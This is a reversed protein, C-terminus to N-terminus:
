FSMGTMLVLGLVETMTQNNTGQYVLIKDPGASQISYALVSHVSTTSFGSVNTKRTSTSKYTVLNQIM